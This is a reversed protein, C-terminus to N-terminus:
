QKLFTDIYLQILSNKVRKLSLSSGTLQFQLSVKAQLIHDSIQNKCILQIVRVRLFWEQM